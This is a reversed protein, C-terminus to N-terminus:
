NVRMTGVLIHTLRISPSGPSGIGSLQGKLLAARLGQQDLRGTQCIVNLLVVGVNKLAVLCRPATRNTRARVAGSGASSDFTWRPAM